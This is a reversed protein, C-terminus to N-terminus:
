IETRPRAPTPMTISASITTEQPFSPSSALARPVTSASPGTLSRWEYMGPKSARMMALIGDKTIQEAKRLAEIECPQKITRLKRLLRNANGIALHPYNKRVDRLLKHSPRDIDDSNEKYTDLYLTEYPGKSALFHLEQRFSELSRIDSVGSFAEAEERSLRKGTWREEMMNKPLLYLRERVEGGETKLALLISQKQHIGTLYVFNRDTYFLYNADASKRLEEGSFIVLMSNPKLLEYLRRRNGAYFERDM